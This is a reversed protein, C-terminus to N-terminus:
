WTTWFNLLVVQGQLAGLSIEEGTLDTLTFDPARAGVVPEVPLAATPTATAMEAPPEVTSSRLPALLGVAPLPAVTFTAAATAPAPTPAPTSVGLESPANAVATVLTSQGDPTLCGTLLM